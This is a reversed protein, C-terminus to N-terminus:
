SGEMHIRRFSLPDDPGDTHINPVVLLVIAVECSLIQSVETVSRRCM